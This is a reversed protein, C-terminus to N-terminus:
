PSGEPSREDRPEAPVVRVDYVGDYGAIDQVHSKVQNDPYPGAEHEGEFGLVKYTIKQM